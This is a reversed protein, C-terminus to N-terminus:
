YNIYFRYGGISVEAQGNYFPLAKDFIAPFVEKGSKDIYGFKGGVLKTSIGGTPTLNMRDVKICTCTHFVPSNTDIDTSELWGGVNFVALGEFFPTAYFFRPAIIVKGDMSAFGVQGISDVIRFLGNEIDYYFGNDPTFVNFLKKDSKDIAIVCEGTKAMVFGITRITDSYCWLYKGIPIVIKGTEDAYGFAELGDEQLAHVRHLYGTQANTNSLGYGM